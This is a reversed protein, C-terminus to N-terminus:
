EKTFFSISTKSNIEQTQLASRLFRAWAQATLEPLQYAKVLDTLTSEPTLRAVSQGSLKLQMDWLLSQMGDIVSSYVRRGEADQTQEPKFARLNGPNRAQYVPSGPERYGSYSVVAECLAELKRRIKPEL